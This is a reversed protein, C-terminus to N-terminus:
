GNLTVNSDIESNTDILGIKENRRYNALIIQVVAGTKKDHLVNRGVQWLQKLTTSPKVQRLIKMDSKLQKKELENLRLTFIKGKDKDRESQERYLRFKAKDDPYFETKEESM